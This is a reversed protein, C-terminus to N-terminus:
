SAEQRDQVMLMELWGQLKAQRTSAIRIEQGDSLRLVVDRGDRCVAEVAVTAVWESRSVQQGLGAPMQAVVASFPGPLTQQGRRLTLVVHPGDAQLLVIDEPAFVRNAVRVVPARLPLPTVAAVDEATAPPEAPPPEAAAAEGPGRLEALAAPVIFHVAVGGLIEALVYNFAIDVVAHALSPQETIGLPVALLNYGAFGLAAAALFLRSAPLVVDTGRRARRDAILFGLVPVLGGLVVGAVQAAAHLELPMDGTRDDWNLWILLAVGVLYFVMMVRQRLVLGVEGPRLILEDQSFLRLRLLGTSM